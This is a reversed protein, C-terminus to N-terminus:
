QGMATFVKGVITERNSVQLHKDVHAGEIGTAQVVYGGIQHFFNGRCQIGMAVVTDYL